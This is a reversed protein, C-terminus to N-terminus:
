WAWESIRVEGGQERMWPVLKEDWCQPCLDFECEIGSGGEPYSSGERRMVTIEDIRYQGASLPLRQRCLDCTVYDVVEREYSPETITKKHKM